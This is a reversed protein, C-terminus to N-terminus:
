IRRLGEALANVDALEGVELVLNRVREAHAPAVVREANGSFKTVIEADTLPRDGSGRNIHERPCLSRGDRTRVVVEGSYYRPFGSEPDIEYEVKDALALVASDSLTAPDLEALTFRGRLLSAAVVFPISFQADYS